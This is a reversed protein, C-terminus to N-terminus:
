DGPAFVICVFVCLSCVGVRVHVLVSLFTKGAIKRYLDCPVADDVMSPQLEDPEPWEGQGSSKAYALLSADPDKGWHSKLESCVYM